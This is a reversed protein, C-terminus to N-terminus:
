IPPVSRKVTRPYSPAEPHALSRRLTAYTSWIAVTGAFCAGFIV